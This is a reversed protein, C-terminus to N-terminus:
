KPLAWAVLKILSSPTTNAHENIYPYIHDYFTYITNNISLINVKPLSNHEIIKIPRCPIKNIVMFKNNKMSTYSRMSFPLNINPVIKKSFKIKTKKKFEM